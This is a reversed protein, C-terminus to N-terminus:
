YMESEVHKAWKEERAEVGDVMEITLFGAEDPSGNAAEDRLKQALGMLVKSASAADTQIAGMLNVVKLCLIENVAISELAMAGALPISDGAMDLYAAIEEDSLVPRDADTDSIRLRVKGADTSPDYTWNM